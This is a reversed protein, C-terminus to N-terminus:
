RCFYRQIFLQRPSGHRSGVGGAGFYFVFGEPLICAEYSFGKLTHCKILPNRLSCACQAGCGIELELLPM